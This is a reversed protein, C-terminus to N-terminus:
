GIGEKMSGISLNQDRDGEIDLLICVVLKLGVHLHIGLKGMGWCIRESDFFFFGGNLVPM